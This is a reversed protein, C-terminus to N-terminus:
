PKIGGRAHWPIVQEARRQQEERQAKSPGQAKWPHTRKKAGPKVPRPVYATM